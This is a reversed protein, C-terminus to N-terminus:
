KLIYTVLTETEQRGMTLLSKTLNKKVGHSTKSKLGAPFVCNMKNFLRPAICSFHKQAFSTRRKPILHQRNTTVRTVKHHTSYLHHNEHAYYYLLIVKAYIQRVDLVKAEKYLSESPYRTAFISIEGTKNHCSFKVGTRYSTELTNQCTEQKSVSTGHM